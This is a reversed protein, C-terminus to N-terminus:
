QVDGAAASVADILQSAEQDVMVVTTREAGNLTLWV